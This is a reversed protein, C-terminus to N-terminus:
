IGSYFIDFVNLVIRQHKEKEPQEFRYWEDIRM